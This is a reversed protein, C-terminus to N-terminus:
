QLEVWYFAAANTAMADTFVNVPLNGPVGNTLTTFRSRQWHRKLPTGIAPLVEGVRESGFTVVSCAPLESTSAAFWTAVTGLSGALKTTRVSPRDM